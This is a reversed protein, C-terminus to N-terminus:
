CLLGYKVSVQNYEPSVPKISVRVTAIIRFDLQELRSMFRWQKASYFDRYISITGFRAGSGSGAM